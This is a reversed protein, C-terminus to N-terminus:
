GDEVRSKTDYIGLRPYVGTAKFKSCCASQHGGHVKLSVSFRVINRLGRSLGAITAVSVGIRGEVPRGGVGVEAM